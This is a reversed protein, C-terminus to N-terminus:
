IVALMTSIEQKENRFIDDTQDNYDHSAEKALNDAEEIIKEFM